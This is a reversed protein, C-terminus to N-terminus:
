PAPTGETLAPKDHAAAGTSATMWTKGHLAAVLGIDFSYVDPRFAILGDSDAFVTNYLMYVPVPQDLAVRQTENRPPRPIKATQKPDGFLAWSAVADIARVRVCGHSLFRNRREFLAKDPTDHLYVDFGNPMDFMLAGLGSWPGPVQEVRYPFQDASVARWDIKTGHPDDAPGDVLIMNHAALYSANKALKPLIEAAAVEQPVHWPPNVIIGEAKTALIPTAWDRRGLVVPSTLIIKGDEVVKLSADPTNVEIYRSDPDRPLWRWREMNAEIQLVRDSVPQNLAEVTDSSFAATRALGYRGQFRRLAERLGADSLAEGVTPVQADDQALRMQLARRTEPKLSAFTAGPRIGLTASDDVAIRHYHALAARLFAYEPRPPPLSAIFKALSGSKLAAELEAAADFAPPTIEINAYVKGPPLRGIRVDKAYKLFARTLQMDWAAAAKGTARQPLPEVPYDAPNLGEADAHTVAQMAAAATEPTWALRFGRMQYFREVDDQAAPAGRESHTLAVRVSQNTSGAHVPLSVLVAAALVVATRRMRTALARSLHARGLRTTEGSQMM